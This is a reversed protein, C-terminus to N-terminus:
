AAELPPHRRRLYNPDLQTLIYTGHGGMSHGLIYIRDMDVSPLGKILAKIKELHEANWLDNAQPAVVYGPFETRRPEEAL